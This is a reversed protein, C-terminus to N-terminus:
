ALNWSANESDFDPSIRSYALALPEKSTIKVIASMTATVIRGNTWLNRQPAASMM